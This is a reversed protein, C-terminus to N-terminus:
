MVPNSNKARTVHAMQTCYVTSPNPCSTDSIPLGMFRLYSSHPQMYPADLRAYSSRLSKRYLRSSLDVLAPNHFDICKRKLNSRQPQNNDYDEDNVVPEHKEQLHQSQSPHQQNQGDNNHQQFPNAQRSGGRVHAM